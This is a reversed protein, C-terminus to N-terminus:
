GMPDVDMGTTETPTPSKTERGRHVTYVGLLVAAGGLLHRPTFTEGLLPGAVLATVVPQLLLTPAVLTAPLHGQAYNVALWGLVQVGIGLGLFSLWTAPPFGTLPLRFLLAMLLLVAGATTSATWTFALTPLRARSKQVTLHYAGYFIGGLLGLFTGLGLQTALSLDELLVVTAGALAIGLGVWFGRGPPEKLLLWAGLGVWLPAINAMLTPNTAGSMVIGTAWLSLDLAFFFGALLALRLGQRSLPRRRGQRLVPLALLLSAIGMRYLSTVIGPAQAWRVFVGSFGLLLVGGGLALYASWPVTSLRGATPRPHSETRGIGDSSM